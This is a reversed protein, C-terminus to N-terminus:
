KESFVPNSQEHLDDGISVIQMFHRFKIEQFVLFFIYIEIYQRSFIKGLTSFTLAFNDKIFWVFTFPNKIYASLM